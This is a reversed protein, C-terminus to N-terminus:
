FRCFDELSGRYWTITKESKNLTRALRAHREHLERLPMSLRDM